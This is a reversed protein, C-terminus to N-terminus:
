IIYYLSSYISNCFIFNEFISIFPCVFTPIFIIIFNYLIDLNKDNKQSIKIESKTDLEISGTDEQESIICDGINLDCILCGRRCNKSLDRNLTINFFLTKGIYRDYELNPDRVIYSYELCYESKLYNNNRFKISINESPGLENNISSYITQKTLSSTLYIYGDEIINQIKIGSYIYGFINNEIILNKSLDFSINEITQNKNQLLYDIIDLKFDTNNPYGIFMLSSFLKNGNSNDDLYYNSGIIIFENFIHAKIKESIIKNFSNYIQIKYYRLKVEKNIMLDGFTSYVIGFYNIIIIYLNKLDNSM